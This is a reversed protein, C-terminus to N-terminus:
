IQSTAEDTAIAILIDRTRDIGEVKDTQGISLRKGTLAQVTHPHIAVRHGFLDYYSYETHKTPPSSGFFFHEGDCREVMKDHKDRVTLRFARNLSREMGEPPKHELTERIYKEAAPSIAFPVDM